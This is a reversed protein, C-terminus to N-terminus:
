LFDYQRLVVGGNAQLDRGAAAGISAATFATV